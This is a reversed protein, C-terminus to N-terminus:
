GASWYRDQALVLAAAGVLGATQGLAAPVIEVRRAFELRAHTRFAEELPDFLLRGTQSLGGGLAAVELDCLHTTSALAIGVARGARRMAAVAVPDGRRADAALEVGTAAPDDPRWGQERAWAVLAPGRAVAELCGRGGCACPPGGPDVVVHGVHGANGSAGNVLRGGLILGGGVGTSVVVGLVNGYGRGAGRWHEGGAVCIADNHIRVPLGPYLARLRARLPFGRWAPINLPSVRAAPWAMPGGCGVGVGALPPGGADATLKGLLSELTRWLREAALGGADPVAPNPTAVRADALVRGDPDVLAAALKTGGIDVALVPRDPLRADSM